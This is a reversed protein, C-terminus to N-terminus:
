ILAYIITQVSCDRLSLKLDLKLVFCIYFLMVEPARTVHGRGPALQKQEEKLAPDWWTSWLPAGSLHELSISWLPAGSLHELSTVNVYDEIM